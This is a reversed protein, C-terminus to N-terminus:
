EVSEIEIAVEGHENHTFVSDNDIREMGWCVNFYGCQRGFSHCSSPNRPRIAGHPADTAMGRLRDIDQVDRAFAAHEHELRAIAQRQFYREPDEAMAQLCRAVLEDDTEENPKGARLKRFSPKRIVDYLITAGPFAAAYMSVQLDTASVQRWYSSGPSIDSSTTKHEVIVLHSTLNVGFVGIKLDSRSTDVKAEFKDYGLADVTGAVRVGGIDTEFPVEVHVDSLNPREYRAAYGLCSARAIPDSPLDICVSSGDPRPSWWDNLFRHVSSGRTLAEPRLLPVRRLGYSFWWERACRQYCRAESAHLPNM